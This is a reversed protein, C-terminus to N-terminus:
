CRLDGYTAVIEGRGFRCTGRRSRVDVAVGVVGSARQSEAFESAYSRADAETEFTAATPFDVCKGQMGRMRKVVRFKWNKGM